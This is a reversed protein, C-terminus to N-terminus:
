SHLPNENGANESIQAVLRRVCLTFIQLDCLKRMGLYNEGGVWRVKLWEPLRKKPNPTTVIIGQIHVNQQRMM